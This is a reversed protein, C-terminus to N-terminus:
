ANLLKEDILVDTYNLMFAVFLWFMLPLLLFSKNNMLIAGTLLLAIPITYLAKTKNNDSESCGYYYLWLNLTINLCIYLLDIIQKPYKKNNRSLIWSYGIFIYLITWVIGFVKPSPRFPIQDGSSSGINCKNSIFFAILMPLVIFVLLQQICIM